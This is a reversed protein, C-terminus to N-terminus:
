RGIRRKKGRRKGKMDSENRRTKKRRQLHNM